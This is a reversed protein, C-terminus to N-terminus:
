DFITYLLLKEAVSTEKEEGQKGGRKGYCQSAVIARARHPPLARDAIGCIARKFRAFLLHLLEAEAKRKEVRIKGKRERERARSCKEEDTIERERKTM